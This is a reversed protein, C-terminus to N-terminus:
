FLTEGIKMYVFTGADPAIKVCFHAIREIQDPLSMRRPENLTFILTVPYDTLHEKNIVIGHMAHINKFADV